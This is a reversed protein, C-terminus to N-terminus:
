GISAENKTLMGFSTKELKANGSKENTRSFSNKITTRAMVKIELMSDKNLILATSLNSGSFLLDLTLLSKFANPTAVIALPSKPPNFTTVTIALLETFTFLPAM